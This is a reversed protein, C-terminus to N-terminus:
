FAPVGDPVVISRTPSVGWLVDSLVREFVRDRRISDWVNDADKRRISAATAARAQLMQRWGAIGLNERMENMRQLKEIIRGDLPRYSGDDETVYCVLRLEQLAEFARQQCNPFPEITGRLALDRQLERAFADVIDEIRGKLQPLSHYIAWRGEGQQGPLEVWRATLEPDIRRLQALIARDPTPAEM